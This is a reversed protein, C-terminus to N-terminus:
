QSAERGLYHHAENILMGGLRLSALALLAAAAEAWSIERSDADL